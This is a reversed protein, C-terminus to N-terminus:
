EEFNEVRIVKPQGRVVKLKRIQKVATEMAGVKADHVMLILPVMNGEHGEPQIISSIGIKAEALIAAIQSMTGPRDVVNLRLYFPSVTEEWPSVTGDEAHPSFPPIRNHTQHKLDLAADALDSVVASATADQGAGRGYYLTEGVIDGGIYVANFVDQVGALVHGKPVLTPCVSIQVANSAKTGALPKISALLKIGYGLQDAFQIDQQSIDRIGEVHIQEPPIWFGHALSGLIGAKHMADFGDVDLSPEAEAYGLRQADELVSQFDCGERKMRTLIYNCTGNLIGYIYPFQNGILGERLVKIIPIGGAVSAEYYLNTGNQNALSFLEEGHESLLAKNATVVPKGQSLARKVIQRAIKVGGVLEVVLDTKPDDVVPKWETSLHKRAIQVNRKKKLDRVVVNRVSLGIGLRSAILRGNRKLAQYVGGGVTGGGIIAVNIQGMFVFPIFNCSEWHASLHLICLFRDLLSFDKHFEMKVYIGSREISHFPGSWVCSGMLCV